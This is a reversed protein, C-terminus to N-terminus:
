APESRESLNATCAHQYRPEKATPLAVKASATARIMKAIITVAAGSGSRSLWTVALRAPALKHYREFGDHLAV